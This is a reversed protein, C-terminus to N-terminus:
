RRGTTAMDLRTIRSEFELENAHAYPRERPSAAEGYEVLRSADAAFANGKCLKVLMNLRDQNRKNAKEPAYEDRPSRLIIEVGRMSIHDCPNRMIDLIAERHTQTLATASSIKLYGCELWEDKWKCVRRREEYPGHGQIFSAGFTKALAIKYPSYAKQVKDNNATAIQLTVSQAYVPLSLLSVATIMWIASRM